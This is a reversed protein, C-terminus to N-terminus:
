RNANTWKLVDYTFYVSHVFHLHCNRSSADTDYLTFTYGNVWLYRATQLGSEDDYTEPDFALIERKIVDVYWQEPENSVQAQPDDEKM